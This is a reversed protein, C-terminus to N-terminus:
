HLETTALSGCFPMTPNVAWTAHPFCTLILPLCALMAVPFPPFVPLFILAECTDAGGLTCDAIEQDSFACCRTKNVSGGSISCNAVCQPPPNSSHALNFAAEIAATASFARHSILFTLTQSSQKKNRRKSPNIAKEDSHFQHLLRRHLFKSPLALPTRVLLQRLRRPRQCAHYCRRMMETVRLCNKRENKSFEQVSLWLAVILHLPYRVKRGGTLVALTPPLSPFLRRM